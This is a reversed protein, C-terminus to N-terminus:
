RGAMALIDALAEDNTAYFDPCSALTPDSSFYILAAAAAIGVRKELKEGEKGALEVVWGARCHSTGCETRNRWSRMDFLQPAGQVADALKVHINPVVPGTPIAGRLDAGTLIAGRLDADRLNAGRLIARRGTSQDVLWLKHDALIRSLEEKNM